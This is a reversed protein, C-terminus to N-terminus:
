MVELTLPNSKSGRNLMETTLGFTGEDRFDVMCSFKLKQYWGFLIWVSILWSGTVALINECGPM